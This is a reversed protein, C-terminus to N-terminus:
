ARLVDRLGVAAAVVEGSFGHGGDDPGLGREAADLAAPEPEAARRREAADAEAGAVALMLVQLGLVIADTAVLQVRWTPPRQGVFEITLGGHVYGANAERSVPLRSVAHVLVCYANTAVVIALVIPARAQRMAFPKPTLYNLQIVSRIVLRLLSIDMLYLYVLHAYCLVDLSRVLHRAFEQRKKDLLAKM